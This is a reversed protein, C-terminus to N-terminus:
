SSSASSGTGPRTSTALDLVMDHWGGGGFKANSPGVHKYEFREYYTVLYGQCILAVRESGLGKMQQVFAKTIMKGLGCGQLKPSVALSHLCITKGGELHGVEGKGKEVKWNAPIDMDKDSVVESNSATAIIHALLVSKANDSRNTEVPHAAELTPFMSSDKVIEPLTQFVGLSLEPCTTLRYEIKDASARHQPNLFAANELAIAAPLDSIGLPRILPVFPIPDLVEQMRSKRLRQDRRKASITRQLSAFDDDVDSAEDDIVEENKPCSIQESSAGLKNNTNPAM